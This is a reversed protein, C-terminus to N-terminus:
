KQQIAHAILPTKNHSRAKKLSVHMIKETVELNIAVLSDTDIYPPWIMRGTRVKIYSFPHNQYKFSVLLFHM